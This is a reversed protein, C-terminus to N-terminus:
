VHARGIQTANVWRLLMGQKASPPAPPLMTRDVVGGAIFQLGKGELADRIAQSNNEVPTRLGREFDAITSVAIRAASALERQSWALLARAAKVQEPTLTEM